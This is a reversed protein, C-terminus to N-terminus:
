RRFLEKLEKASMKAIWSEGSSVSMDALERKSKIMADIREEFSGAAILRHVFVNKTQGIRFARDTAQNEVAPNFWLDFHIVRSAATLNLGLGGARLSVLMVRSSAERQFGDVTEDRAKKSLGGHYLLCSEGLEQAIITRLLELTEVYQSFVLVKERRDLMERLLEILLLCKGSLRAEPPSEKDYVRPHDCIQKLATILKLVLALREPGEPCAQAEATGTRVVSEYLAAQEPVFPAYEDSVIKEPLDPVIDRDTKLRRMLFPSTIRKLRAAVAADRDIEIPERWAKKFEAAGGLYGPLAFDFISRLDELRNEVPTGSLAIRRPAGISKVGRSRRAKANKMLQAEDCVILSFGKEDLKEADRAATDYTTVCVKAGGDLRRAAGHYRVAKLSPAFKALEREWNTLLAAPAVVLAGGPLQGEEDLRAIAAITQVTKGLGMDDALVCGFGSRLNSMIWRYGLEQYPRLSATLARPPGEDHLGFLSAALAEADASFVADGALRAAVLDLASPARGSRARDLLRSAERPDLRVFGDHFLVIEDKARVLREFAAPTLLEDGIAIKWDYRLLSDLDLYTQLSGASRVKVDLVLRPSLAKKLIKPLVVDIGLQELLASSEGLFAALRSEGLVIKKESALSRIEPVYSSLATPVRLVELDGLKKVASSLALARPKVGPGGSPLVSLGLSFRQGASSGDGADDVAFRYRYKSGEFDLGFVSLWSAISRPLARKGPASVDLTGGEFFLEVLPRVAATANAPRFGLSLAWEGLCAAVLVRATSAGSVVAASRRKSPLSFIGPDYRGLEDLSSSLDKAAPLPIWAVALSSGSGDLVPAPVFALARWSASALRAFYFLFRYGPSGREDAFRVFLSVLDSTSMRRARGSQESVVIRISGLGSLSFPARNERGEYDVFFSASSFRRELASVSEGDGEGRGVVSPSPEPIEIAARHYFEILAAGFDGEAFPPRPPILSQILGLYSEIGPLAPPEEPPSARPSEDISLAFPAAFAPGDKPRGFRESLDIGRLAFLLRPDRDIEQAILYYVAAMHKCPDGWDPCSCSRKMSSWAGPILEVKAEKLREILEEPLEGSEIRSLLMPEKEILKFISAAVSESLPPFDIRVKYWPSSHGKVKAIAACGEFDLQSVKGTNAYSKGRSLRGSEDYGDLAEVFWRGWPTLGFSSAAAM